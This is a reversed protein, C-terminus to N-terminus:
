TTGDIDGVEVPDRRFVKKRLIYIKKAVRNVKANRV